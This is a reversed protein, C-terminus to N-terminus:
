KFVAVARGQKLAIRGLPLDRWWLGAERGALGTQRSQGSLLAALDALDDLVLATDPGPPEPLLCRLRPAPSLRGGTLRGLLAGQWICEPPLLGAAQAPIFRVHEGYLAAHGPPLLAPDCCPGALCDPPLTRGAERRAGRKEPASAPPVPPTGASSATKRLLALYFGQARSKEGDVRLTGAGDSREEWAFGPFPPLTERVLGLEEEAFCVQAENEAENTTCTSYVLRGGPALLSAAHRLLRRQLGILSNLKDGQWLKLVRPHKEATGWGSCPPDLQIANWSAPVLPLNEGGYSCTAAQLLNCQHLNARLTGLRAPAPENALVFGTPGTLQALFGSKSGPSACVDLVAEGTRPALALPPLMSSRDQIYIYGFFAALSGGLPRPERCLRRCLPSFPEPEFEYGQARLLAEVLPIHRTECVLRFSRSHQKPMIRGTYPLDPAFDAPNLGGGASAAAKM